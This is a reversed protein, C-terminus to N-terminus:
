DGRIVGVDRPAAPSLDRFIGIQSLAANKVSGEAVRRDRPVGALGM